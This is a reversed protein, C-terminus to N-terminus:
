ISIDALYEKLSRTFETGQDTRIVLLAGFRCVINSHVWTTISMAPQSALPDDEVCKSYACVAVILHWEGHPLVPLYMVMDICFMAFPFLEKKNPHLNRPLAFKAMNLWVALARPAKKLCDRQLSGWYDHEKLLHYLRM